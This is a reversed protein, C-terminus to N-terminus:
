ASVIDRADIRQRRVRRRTDVKVIGNEIRVPHRDLPRPAPASLVEGQAGFASAHCPCLFRGEEEVWPVTCGLHTCERHLALFGGGELRVLYFKGAPFPTVSGPSFRDLPGAVLVGAAEAEPRTRHPRLFEVVLWLYEVLAVGVLLLWLRGLFSRRGPSPPQTRTM